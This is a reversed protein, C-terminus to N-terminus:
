LKIEIGALVATGPQPIDPYNEYETDFLNDISLTLLAPISPLPIRSQWDCVVYDDMRNEASNQADGYRRGSYRVGFSHSHGSDKRWIGRLSAKNRALYAPLNGEISPQQPYSDYEGDTYSYEARLLLAKTMQWQLSYEIGRTEIGTVNVNRFVGDPQRVFDFSDELSYLFLTLETQVNEAPRFRLGTEYADLTEPKLDPNGEFRTGWFVTNIYRDSLAPARHARSGSLHIEANDNLAYVAALRPSWEAGFDNDYDYRLGAIMQLKESIDIEAQLFVAQIQTSEDFGNEPLDADVSESRIETGATFRQRQGLQLIQQLEGHWSQQEYVETGTQMRRRDDRASRWIRLLTEATAAENQIIRWDLQQYDQEVTRDVSAAIDEGAGEGRYAGTFVRVEGAQGINFGMNANFNWAEWPRDSGDSNKIYGDTEVYSSAIAYDVPGAAAGGSLSLHRTNYTGAKAALSAYPKRTGRKTVINLVGSMANSGYLASAPGRLLEIREIGDAALLAFEANGQLQENVRRGDVLVLVRKAGFGPALGRLSFRVPAGPLGSGILDGGAIERLLRDVNISSMADLTESDWVDVRGAVSVAPRETKTATVIMESLPVFEGEEASVPITLTLFLTLFGAYCRM